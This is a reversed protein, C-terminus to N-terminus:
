IVITKKYLIPQSFLMEDNNVVEIRVYLDNYAVDYEAETGVVKKAIKGGNTIFRIESPADLSVNVRKDTASINTFTVTTGLLAGYTHGNRYAKLCNHETADPVLLVNRGKDLGWNPINFGAHDITCFGYVRRGSTLIDDWIKTPLVGFPFPEDYHRMSSHSYIEIGLVREDYDLMQCINADTFNGEGATDRTYQPHAIIVGGGDEYQLDAFIGDFANQWTDSVGVPEEGSQSGSEYFSGLSNFHFKSTLNTVSHHEANPSDLLDIPVNATTDRLPYYRPTSPYYASIPLHRVGSAYLSLMASREHIHNMSIIKQSNIWDVNDYPNIVNRKLSYINKPQLLTTKIPHINKM